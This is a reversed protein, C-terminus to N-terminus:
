KRLYFRKRIIPKDLHAKRFKIIYKMMYDYMYQEDLFKNMFICKFITLFFYFLLLKLITTESYRQFM